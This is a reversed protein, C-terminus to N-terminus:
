SFSEAFKEKGSPNFVGVIAKASETARLKRVYETAVRTM